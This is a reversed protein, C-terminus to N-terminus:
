QPASGAADRFPGYFASAYKASYAMIAISTAGTRTSRRLSDSQRPRGDYRIARHRRSRSRAYTLAIRCLLEVRRM